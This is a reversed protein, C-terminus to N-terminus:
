NIAHWKVGIQEVAAMDVVVAGFDLEGSRLMKNMRKGFHKHDKVKMYEVVRGGTMLDVTIEAIKL